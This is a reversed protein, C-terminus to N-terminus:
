ATYTLVINFYINDETSTIEFDSVDSSCSSDLNAGAFAKYSGVGLKYIITKSGKFQYNYDSEDADDNTSYMFFLTVFENNENNIIQLFGASCSFSDEPYGVLTVTVVVQAFERTLEADIRTDETFVYDKIDIITGNCIWNQFIYGDKKPDEIDVLISGEKRVSVTEYVENNVYFTVYVFDLEQNAYIELEAKLREIEAKLDAIESQLEIILKQKNQNDIELESNTNQLTETESQLELIQQLKQSNSQELENIKLQLDSVVASAKAYGTDHADQLDQYTYKKNKDFIDSYITIVVSCAIIVAALLINLTVKLWTAM